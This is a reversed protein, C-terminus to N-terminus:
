SVARPDNPRHIVALGKAELELIRSSLVSDIAKIQRLFSEPIAPYPVAAREPDERRLEAYMLRSRELLAHMKGDPNDRHLGHLIRLQAYPIGANIREFGAPSSIPVGLINTFARTLFPPNGPDVMVIHCRKWRALGLMSDLFNENFDPFFRPNSLVDFSFVTGDFADLVGHKVREQLRPYVKDPLPRQTIILETHWHHALESICRVAHPHSAVLSFDESSFVIPKGTGKWGQGEITEMLLNGGSRGDQDAILRRAIHSHGPGRVKPFPYHIDEGQHLLAHQISTTGTKHPGVHFFVRTTKRFLRLPSPISWKM